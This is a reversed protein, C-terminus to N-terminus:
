TVRRVRVGNPMPLASQLNGSAKALSTGPCTRQSHLAEPLEGLRYKTAIEWGSAASVLVENTADAILSRAARSLRESDAIWWVFAHTDLLVRM